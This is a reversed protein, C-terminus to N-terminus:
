RGAGKAGSCPGGAEPARSDDRFADVFRDIRADRTSDVSLQRGWASAVVPRDLGPYPSVLVRDDRKALSRLEEVQRRATGPQYTIWIAGHELSHVARENRVPVRYFGCNQWVLDHDGSVPPNQPYSVATRVHENGSVEYSRVGAPATNSAFPLHPVWYLAVGLILATMVFVGAVRRGPTPQRWAARLPRWMLMYLLYAIGVLPLLLILIQVVSTVLPLVEGDAAADRVIEANTAIADWAVTVIGPLRKVLLFLLFLLVPLMLAIYALFVGKAWRKLAPLRIGMRFRAPLLSRLFPGAQSYFDPVGTLDTLVWYGDMRVFPIFQHAIELNILLVAILLFEQGTLLAVAMVALSFIIHFYVGGLGTRVRAWRGLRYSDTADTFFVPFVAYFGAGMKRAHGGGYRLAAAHGFEHFVASLVIVAVLILLAGPTYLVDIFASLLGRERYLWFHAAVAAILVAIVLPPAFLYRLVRTVPEIVRPGIMKVRLNVGLPSIGSVPSDRRGVIEEDGGAVIGIPALNSAILTRVQDGTVLWDTADTVGDAIEDLTKVGDVQEAIRYLLETLQIFQGDRQVLWQRDVFATDPLEGILQVKPALQPREPVGTLNAEVSTM